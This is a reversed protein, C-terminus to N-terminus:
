KEEELGALWHRITKAAGRMEDAYGWCKLKGLLKVMDASAPMVEAAAELANAAAELRKHTEAKTVDNM